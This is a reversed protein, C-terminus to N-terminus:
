SSENSTNSVIWENMWENYASLRQHDHKEKKHPGRHRLDPQGGNKERAEHDAQQSTGREAKM